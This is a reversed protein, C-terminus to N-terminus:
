EGPIAARLLESLRPKIYSGIYEALSKDTFEFRSKGGDYSIFFGAQLEDSSKVVVGKKVEDSLQSFLSKELHQADHSSLTVELAQPDKGKHEKILSSIIRNLEPVSLAEKVHAIIISNLLSDIEKRLVILMDRAAQQLLLQTKEETARADAKAEAIFRGAEAKAKEILVGAREQAEQEIQRAKEQAEQIGEKQIKEILGKIDQTM